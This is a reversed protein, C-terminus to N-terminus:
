PPQGKAGSLAESKVVEKNWAKSAPASRIQAIHYPAAPVSTSDPGLMIMDEMDFHKRYLELDEPTWPEAKGKKPPPISVGHRSNRMNETTTRNAFNPVFDFDPPFKYVKREESQGNYERRGPAGNLGWGPQGRERAM